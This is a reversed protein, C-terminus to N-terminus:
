SPSGQFESLTQSLSQGIAFPHRVAEPLRHMQGPTNAVVALGVVPKNLILRGENSKLEIVESKPVMLVAAILPPM